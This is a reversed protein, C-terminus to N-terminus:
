AQREEFLAIVADLVAGAVLRKDTL